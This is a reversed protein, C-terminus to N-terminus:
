HQRSRFPNKDQSAPVLTEVQGAFQTGSMAQVDLVTWDCRLKTVPIIAPANIEKQFGDTKGVLDLNPKRDKHRASGDSNIATGFSLAIIQGPTGTRPPGIDGLIRSLFM